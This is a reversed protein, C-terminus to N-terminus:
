RNFKLLTIEYIISYSNKIDDGITITRVGYYIFDYERSLHLTQFINDMMIFTYVNRKIKLHSVFECSRRNIPSRTQNLISVTRSRFLSYFNSHFIYIQISYLRFYRHSNLPPDRSLPSASSLFFSSSPFFKYKKALLIPELIAHILLRVM